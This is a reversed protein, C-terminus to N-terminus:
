KKPQNMLQPNNLWSAFGDADKYGSGFKLKEEKHNTIVYSPLGSVGFKSSVQRNNDTNIEVFVYGKLATKVKESGISTKLKQCWGCWDAEFVAVIPMGYQGSMTLAEQYTSARMDQQPQIPQPQIPQPQPQVPVNPVVNPGNPNWRDDWRWNSTPGTFKEIRNNKFFDYAAAGGFVVVVMFFITTLMNDQNM